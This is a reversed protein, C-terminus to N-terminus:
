ICMVLRPRYPLACIFLQTNLQNRYHRGGLTLRCVFIWLGTYWVRSPWGLPCRNMLRPTPWCAGADWRARTSCAKPAMTCCTTLKQAGNTHSVGFDFDAQHIQDTVHTSKGSQHLLDTALYPDIRGFGVFFTLFVPFVCIFYPYKTFIAQSHSPHPVM